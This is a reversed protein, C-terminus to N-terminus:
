SSVLEEIKRSLKAVTSLANIKQDEAQAYDNTIRILKDQMEGFQAKLEMNQSVARSVTARENQLQTSLQHIDSDFQKL